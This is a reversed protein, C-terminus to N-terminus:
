NLDYESTSTAILDAKKIAIPEGATGAVANSDIVRTMAAAVQAGTVGPDANPVTITLSSHLDTEFTM